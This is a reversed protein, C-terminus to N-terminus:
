IFDYGKAPTSAKPREMIKICQFRWYGLGINKRDRLSVSYDENKWYIRATDGDKLIFNDTILYSKDGDAETVTCLLAKISEEKKSSDLPNYTVAYCQSALFEVGFLLNNTKKEILIQNVIGLVLADDRRDAKRIGILRGISLIGAQEFRYTLLSESATHAQLETQSESPHLSDNLLEHASILGLTICRDLRDEFLPTSELEFGSWRHFLYELLDFSPMQNNQLALVSNFRGEGINALRAKHELTKYLKTFDLYLTASDPRHAGEKLLFPPRDEDTLIVFQASQGSVPTNQIHVSECLTKIFHYVRLVEKQMLGNPAALSLLLIQKYCDEPSSKESPHTPDDIIRATDKKLKISLKYLSHLDIWIWDPISIGMLCHSVVIGSLGSICRHLALPLQKGQFWGFTKQSLEKLVIWYSLTLEKEISVLVNFIKQDNEEKPFGTKTLRSLLNEEIALISPRLQELAAIRLDASIALTNFEIILDHVLRTALGPNAAPLENIWQQLPKAEYEKTRQPNNEQKPIVLYFSNKM